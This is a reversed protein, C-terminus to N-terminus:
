KEDPLAILRYGELKSSWSLFVQEQNAILLPHDSVDRTEAVTQLGGWSKGGDHSRMSNIVSVEGDFEKWALYVNKGKSLVAAHGARHASNGISLPVSFTKGGDASHAYFLGSREPAHTFWALHFTDGSISLAPGHHPCADVEWNDFTARQIDEPKPAERGLRLLAHDRTNKGFIHRWVIIPTGTKDVAMAVRCCECSHEAARINPQFSTGGDESLAYYVAAGNYPKKERQAAFLDRKDLWAIFVQGQDNVELAEFRHSIIERNDNVTFPASFSRGGDLSRSFRIDGTMPKELGRTYSVYVMGKRVVIKPRNEGDGLIDEPEMNVKVSESLTGGRDDSYSVYLHRGRITALWLRGKDDFATTIALSPKALRDKWVKDRDVSATKGPMGHDAHDAALAPCAAFVATLLLAIGSKNM